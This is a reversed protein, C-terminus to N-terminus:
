GAVPPAGPTGALMTMILAPSRREHLLRAMARMPADVHAFFARYGDCLWNLGPEGDPTVLLRDKPCGGNCAFRVACDRCFRPLSARKAAGFARQRPSGVLEGLPTETINGLRWRWEVFHDCPFVDGNHELAVADGCTEAHVCLTAPAGFWIGLAVDFLQVFVRGVDRRVWEDFV